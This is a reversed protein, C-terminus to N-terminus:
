FTVVNGIMTWPVLVEVIIFIFENCLTKLELHLNGSSRGVKSSEKPIIHMRIICCESMVSVEIGILLWIEPCFVFCTDLFGYWAVSLWLLSM